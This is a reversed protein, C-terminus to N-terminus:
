WEASPDLRFVEGMEDLLPQLYETHYGKGGGLVPAVNSPLEYGWTILHSGVLQMWKNKLSEEGEFIHQDILLHEDLVSEFMGLAAAFAEHIATQMRAKSVENGEALQKMWTQAHFVHYKIEGHFKRALKALPEFSSQSLGEFRLLQATDFFYHRVLSFDYEGIPMEVFHSSKFDKENRTFAVQDPDAMGFEKELLQFLNWAQGVQDQAISAFAIDEEIIPGIGTWESNRHGMILENDAIQLIFNQLATHTNDQM